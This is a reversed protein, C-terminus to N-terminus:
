WLLMGYTLQHFCSFDIEWLDPHQFDWILAGSNNPEPSVERRPKCIGVKNSNEWRTPYPPWRLSQPLFLILVFVRQNTKKCPCLHWWMPAEGKQGWRVRVEQRFDWRYIDDRQLRLKLMHIWPCVFTWDMVGPNRVRAGYVNHSSSEKNHVARYPPSGCITDISLVSLLM